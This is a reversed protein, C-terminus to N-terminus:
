ELIEELISDVQDYLNENSSNDLVIVTLGDRYRLFYTRFATWSGTHFVLGNDGLEWGFGYEVEEGNNLTAPSTAQDALESDLLTGNRLAADFKLLDEASACINGDGFIGDLYEVDYTERNDGEVVFGRAKGSPQTRGVCVSAQKMKLPKFINQKLFDAYSQGSAKEIISGLLLYGTNSYSYDSGPSFLQSPRLESFMRIIDRNDVFSDIPDQASEEFYEDAYDEYDPLGSTHSLLQQITVSSAASNWGGIEPVYKIAKDALSLRGSEALMLIATATIPKSVSALNFPSDTKLPAGSADRIGLAELYLIQGDRAVLAVGNFGDSQAKRFGDEFLRSEESSAPVANAEPNCGSFASVAILFPILILSRFSTRRM